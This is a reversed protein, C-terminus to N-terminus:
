SKEDRHYSKNKPAVVVVEPFTLDSLPQDQLDTVIFFCSTFSGGVDHDKSKQPLFDVNMNMMSQIKGRISALFTPSLNVLSRM